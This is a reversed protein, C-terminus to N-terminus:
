FIRMIGEVYESKRELSIMRRELFKEIESRGRSIKLLCVAFISIKYYIRLKKLIFKV